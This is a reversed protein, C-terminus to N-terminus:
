ISAKKFAKTTSVAFIDHTPLAKLSLWCNSVNCLGISVQLLPTPPCEVMAVRKQVQVVMKNKLGTM